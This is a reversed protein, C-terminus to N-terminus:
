TSPDDLLDEDVLKKLSAFPQELLKQADTLLDLKGFDIHSQECRLRFAHFWRYQEFMEIEGTLQSLLQMVIPVYLSNMVTLRTAESTHRLAQVLQYTQEGMRVTVRDSLPEVDFAGEAVENSSVIEFISEISPLPPRTVEITQQDDLALIQGASIDFNASFESHAGQPSYSSIEKLSWVMPRLQVNGLLAGPAFHRVGSPFGFEELRRFGTDLCKIYCGFTAAGEEILGVIDPHDLTASCHISVQNQEREERVAFETAINSGVIDDSWPALVPYPFSTTESIKM